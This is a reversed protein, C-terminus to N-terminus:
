HNSGPLPRGASVKKGLIQNIAASEKLTYEAVVKTRMEKMYLMFANLPKKVHQQPPTAPGNGNPLKGNSHNNHHHNHGGSKGSTKCDSGPSSVSHNASHGSPSGTRGASSGNSLRSLSSPPKHDAVHHAAQAHFSGHHPYHPTLSVRSNSADLHHSQNFGHHHGLSAAMAAVFENKGAGFFPHHASSLPHGPHLHHHYPPILSPTAFRTFSATSVAPLSGPYPGRFASSTM